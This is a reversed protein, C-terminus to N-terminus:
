PIIAQAENSYSSENGSSDVATTVYYYTQSSQVSADSFNLSGVLSSNIKSYGSGSVTSRYVNYGSVTSTSANWSLAVSHQTPTAGTGSIAVSAPSGSANSTVTVSGNVSGASTPSFHVTIQMSQSATLTVPTGAGSLSFGAGSVSIQSITVSSNGTNNITITQQGSSGTNVTGFNLSSPSMSLTLSASVGTGSLSITNPSSPANSVLSVSGSASGAAQPAFQTNFTTSAGPNLSLPLNVTSTSFGSGTVSLQTITLVGTGTNSLQITQSNPSGVTVNGFSVSAPTVSMAAQVGTGNVPIVTSSGQSNTVTVNGTVTEAATPSFTLSLAATQGPTLTMPATIGSATVDKANVSIQSITVNTNGGNTLTVSKASSSGANVSGFSLSSPTASVTVTAAVGTGSLAVATPSNSANSSISVSGNLSGATTPAFLVSFTATKGAAITVPTNLGSASYGAGSVTLQAITLSATGTNTVTFLQSKTQGDVVSGFNFSTPSVSLGAQTATGSLNITLPSGPADSSVKITGTVSGATTPSFKVSLTASQSANLTAPTTLGAVSFGTGAPVISSIQVAANGSNTLTINQTTNSGTAVSGFSLSTPNATLAGQQTTSGTGNLAVTVVPNSPDNSTLAISGNAAGATTPTFTVTAPVSQGASITRPTAIGSIGFEAGNMSIVSVTLDASGSNGILLNSSGKSGISVSGFSINAPTVTIQAQTSSTITGSLNVVVPNSGADSQVTLTGTVSGSTTGNLWVSFATSQGPAMTLPLTIGSTGFQSTSAKVQQITVAANGTNTLTITQATKQGSLVKGFNVTSPSVSFNATTPPTQPKGSVLGACGSTILMPLLALLLFFLSAYNRRGNQESKEKRGARGAQSGGM